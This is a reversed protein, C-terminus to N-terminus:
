IGRRRRRPHPPNPDHSLEHAVPEEPEITWTRRGAGRLIWAAIIAPFVIMLLLMAIGVRNLNVFLGLNLLFAYVIGGVLGCRISRRLHPVRLSPWAFVILFIWFSGYVVQCMGGANVNPADVDVFYRDYRDVVIAFATTIAFVGAGFCATAVIASVFASPRRRTSGAYALTPPVSPV